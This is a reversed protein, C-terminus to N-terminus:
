YDKNFKKDFLEVEKATLKRVRVDHGVVGSHEVAKLKPYMYQLLEKIHDSRFKHPTWSDSLCSEADAVLEEMDEVTVPRGKELLNKSAVAAWEQLKALFPHDETLAKGTAIKISWELPDFDHEAFKLEARERSPRDELTLTNRKRPKKVPMDFM